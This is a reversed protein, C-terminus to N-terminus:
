IALSRMSIGNGSIVTHQLAGGVIEPFMRQQETIAALMLAAGESAAVIGDLIRAPLMPTCVAYAIDNIRWAPSGHKGHNDFFFANGGAKTWGIFFADFDQALADRDEKPIDARVYQRAAVMISARLHLYNEAQSALMHIISLLRTSGRTAVAANLHPLPLCKVVRAVSLGCVQAKGDCVLHVADALKLINIATM